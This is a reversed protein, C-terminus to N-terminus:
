SHGTALATQGVAEFVLEFGVPQEPVVHREPRAIHMGVENDEVRATAQEHQFDLISPEVGNLLDVPLADADNSGVAELALDVREFLGALVGM